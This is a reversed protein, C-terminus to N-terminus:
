SIGLATSSAAPLILDCRCNPLRATSLIFRCTSKRKRAITAHFVGDSSAPSGAADFDRLAHRPEVEALADGPGPANSTATTSASGVEWQITPTIVPTPACMFSVIGTMQQSM